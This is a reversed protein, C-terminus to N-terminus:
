KKLIKYKIISIIYTIILSYYLYSGNTNILLYIFLTVLFLVFIYNSSVIETKVRKYLYNNNITFINDLINDKKDWIKLFWKKFCDYEKLSYSPITYTNIISYTNGFETTLMNILSGDKNKFNEIRTTIDIINGMRNENILINYIIWLGKMKPYLTNNYITLNNDTSYKKALTHKKKTFRTGEPSIVIIGSKIKRVSNIINEQDDEFKRNLKIDPASALAFGIGPFFITTKKIIFYIDRDDFQRIIPIIMTFDILHIHNSIIIDIKNTKNYNGSYYIPSNFGEQYLIPLLSYMANKVINGGERSKGFLYSGMIITQSLSMACLLLVILYIIKKLM